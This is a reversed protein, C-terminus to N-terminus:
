DWWLFLLGQESEVGLEMGERAAERRGIALVKEKATGENPLKIVLADAYEGGAPEPRIALPSIVVRKAGESYLGEVFRLAEPTSAFRNSALAAPHQNGELWARAEPGNKLALALEQQVRQDRDRPMWTSIGLYLAAAVVVVGIWRQQRDM